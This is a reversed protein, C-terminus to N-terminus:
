DGFWCCCFLFSLSSVDYDGAGSLSGVSVTAEWNMTGDGADVVWNDVMYEYAKTAAAVVMGDTDQIYGERVGKLLAYVFMASGSSEFYNGERGPQSMVLWWVGSDPDAAEILKPTLDTLQSLLLDHAESDGPVIDLADVLSMMYWGLARDWIEPSHGRDESAWPQAHSYDYGHYLLGINTNNAATTQLTHNYM